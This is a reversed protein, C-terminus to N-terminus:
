GKVCLVQRLEHVIDVLDEQAKMVADIPKYALPTEDIVGEDKRCEIGRTAEEHDAVSFLERAKTRSHV